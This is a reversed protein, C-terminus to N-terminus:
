FNFKEGTLKEYAAVYKSRTNKVVEEPLSPVPPQRNWKIENLYDRVYQKDFSDQAKGPQYMKVDWFRSSDPTLAEDILILNGNLEGFEFKTDALIFGKSAAYESGANFIKFSLDRLRESLDKGVLQVMREFSINEDHDGQEAKTAPTFIPEPLQASETLGAPLKVGCVTRSKQYEKWGSGALYGRVVCEIDVRKAKKVLVSRGELGACHERVGDPFDKVETAVIHNPCIDKLRDFWFNSTQCLVIGKQPIATPLVFDYASIRDTAVILLHDDLDYVDRVKGKTWVKFPLEKEITTNM